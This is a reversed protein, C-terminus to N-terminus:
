PKFKNIQNAVAVSAATKKAVTSVKKGVYSAGKNMYKIAYNTAVSTAAGIMVGTVFKRGASVKKKSLQAYQSEMQLRSNRSKLESDSMESVDKKSHARKYDEHANEMRRKKRGANTLTGDKNQYRRVGWKMGLIGHHYLENNNM